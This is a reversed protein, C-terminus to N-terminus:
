ASRWLDARRAIECIRRREQPSYVAPLGWLVEAVDEGRAVLVGGPVAADEARRGGPPYAAAEPAGVGVFALMPTVKVAMGSAASLMRAASEADRRGSMRIGPIEVVAAAAACAAPGPAAASTPLSGGDGHRLTIAFVGPPGIVLRDFEAGSDKGNPALVAWGDRRLRGLRRDVVRGARGRARGGAPEAPAPAAAAEDAAEDAAGVPAEFAAEGLEEVLEEGLEEAGGPASVEAPAPLEAATEAAPEAPIGVVAEAPAEPAEAATLAEALQPDEATGFGEIVRDAEFGNPGEWGEDVDEAVAAAAAAASAAATAAPMGFPEPVDPNSLPPMGAAGAGGPGNGALFDWLAQAVEYVHALDGVALRGSRRDYRGVERETRADSVCLVDWGDSWSCSVALDV